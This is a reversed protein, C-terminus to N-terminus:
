HWAGIRENLIQLYRGMFLVQTSLRVEEAADVSYPRSGTDLFSELKKLKERLDNREAIVRKQYPQPKELM